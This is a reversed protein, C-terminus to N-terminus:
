PRLPLTHITIAMLTLVLPGTASLKQQHHCMTVRDHSQHRNAFPRESHLKRYYNKVSSSLATLSITFYLFYQNLNLSYFINNEMIIISVDFM